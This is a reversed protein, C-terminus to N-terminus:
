HMCAAANGAGWVLLLVGGTGVGVGVCRVNGVVPFEVSNVGDDLDRAVEIDDFAYGGLSDLAGATCTRGNECIEEGDENKGERTETGM